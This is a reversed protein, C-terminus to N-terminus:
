RDRELAENLQQREYLRTYEKHAALLATHEGREVLRGARLVYIIDARKITSLRHSVIINTKGKRIELISNLITAETRTDVQSLADDLILIPPNSILARAITLRQRQGGSLTIGREGVLSHIGQPFSDIEGALHSAELAIEISNEDIGQRGFVINNRITDSFIHTEQTVFGISGRVNSLDIDHLPIGDIQIM